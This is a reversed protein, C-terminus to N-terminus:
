GRCSTLGRPSSEARTPRPTASTTPASSPRSRARGWSAPRSSPEFSAPSGGFGKYITEVSVRAAAAVAAVTTVGYGNALFLEEAAAVIAERTEQARALRGTSNYRRRKVGMRNADMTM